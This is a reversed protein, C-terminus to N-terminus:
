WENLMATWNIPVEIAGTFNSGALDVRRYRAIFNSASLSRVIAHCRDSSTIDTQPNVLISPTRAFQKNFNVTTEVSSISTTTSVSTVGTKTGQRVLCSADSVTLDPTATSALTLINTAQVRSCEDGSVTTINVAAFSASNSSPAIYAFNDVLVDFPDGVFGRNRVGIAQRTNNPANIHINRFIYQGGFKTITAGMPTSTGGIDIIGRTTDNRGTYCEINEVVHDCGLIERGLILMMNDGIAKIGTIRNNNGAINLGGGFIQGSEYVCFECNGHWDASAIGGSRSKAVFDHVISARCSISFDNAGGHAIGHRWGTFSGSIDLEQSNGIALGYQTGFGPSESWQHCDLSRGTVKYCKSIGFSTNDSNRAGLDELEIKHGFEVTIARVIGKAGPGPAVATFGKLAGSCYAGCKYVDVDAALYSDYLGNELGVETSSVIETVTCYEGSRYSTRSSNFSGDTPNYILIVDGASLGHASAFTLTRAAKIVNSALDPIATPAVGAKYVVSSNTFTGSTNGQATIVTVNRGEGIVSVDSPITLQGSVLYTGALVYVTKAGSNLAAQIAATDDAVGDGVAGFDKVSVSERLKSQVDTPVAGTGAPLYGIKSAGDNAALESATVADTIVGQMTSRTRGFRDVWTPALSNVADDLNEANDYLDKVDVSGLPNGTNYTTM